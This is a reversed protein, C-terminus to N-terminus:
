RAAAPIVGAPEPKGADAFFLPEGFEDVGFDGILEQIDARTIFAAFARAGAANVGDHKDPNVVIVHYVNLLVPDDQYIIQMQLNDQQALFTARDSLTYRGQQNAVQLTAGMGQGTEVYWDQDAPDIDVRQWLKLELAHTGSDDGRSVFPAAKDATARLLDDLTEEATLDSPDGEPGVIIFDNHMVLTREIGDGAAVMEQEAAPSHVLVVDADGRSAQEIAQGSGLAITQVTYGSEDEFMPVLVDLLGSDQTSTTTALILNGSARTPSAAAGGASTPAATTGAAVTSGIAPTSDGDDDDDSCAVAFVVACIALMSLLFRQM